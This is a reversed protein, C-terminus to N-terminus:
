YQRVKQLDLDKPSLPVKYIAWASEWRDDELKGTTHWYTPPEGERGWDNTNDRWVWTVPLQGQAEELSSWVSCPREDSYQGCTLVYVETPVELVRGPAFTPETM